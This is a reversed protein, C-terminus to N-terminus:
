EGFMRNLVEILYHTEIYELNFNEDEEHKKGNREKIDKIVQEFYALDVGTLQDELVSVNNLEFNNCQLIIKLMQGANITWGRKIFKRIRFLSCVPYRSGNYVLSRSLLSQLAEKRLELHNNKYIYYNMCHVFDYNEHIEDPEGYFRLIVQIKNALTIANSSLFVPRYKEKSQSSNDEQKKEDNTVQTVEENSNHTESNIDDINENKLEETIGESVVNVKIRKVGRIDECENVEIKDSNNPNLKKYKEVYYKAVALTTEYTRFYIDYDSIKEGLLMSSISGGTVIVDSGIKEKLDNDEVSDIWAKVKNQLISKITKTKLGKEM